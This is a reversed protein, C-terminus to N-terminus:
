PRDAAGHPRGEPQVRERLVPVYCAGQSTNNLRRSDYVSIAKGLPHRSVYDENWGLLYCVPRIEVRYGDWSRSGGTGLRSHEVYRQAIAATGSWETRLRETLLDLRVKSLRGLVYVEYGASGTSTKVVWDDADDPLVGDSLIRTEPMALIPEEQLYFRCLDDVYPLLAKNGLFGTGPSNLLAARSLPGAWSVFPDFNILVSLDAIRGQDLDCRDIVPIGIADVIMRRRANEDIQVAWPGGAECGLLAAVHESSDPNADPNAGPNADPDIDLGLRSFWQRVAIVLDPPHDCDPCAPVGTLARYQDAVFTGDATGAVCGVNDELVMWRGDPGHLLDPAYTFRIDDADHGKWLERLQPLSTEELDLIQGILKEDLGLGADLVRGAGLVLDAFLQQLVHARQRVGPQITQRYEADDIVLPVPLIRADDDMPSNRLREAVDQSPSLPDSGSRRRLSAYTLRLEGHEGFAEDFWRRVM